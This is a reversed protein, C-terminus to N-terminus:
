RLSQARLQRAEKVARREPTDVKFIDVSQMSGELETPETSDSTTRPPENPCLCRTLDYTHHIVLGRRTSPVKKPRGPGKRKQYWEEDLPISSKEGNNGLYKEAASVIFSSQTLLDGKGDNDWTM